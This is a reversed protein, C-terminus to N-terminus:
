GRCGSAGQSASRPGPSSQPVAPLLPLHSHTAPAVLSSHGPGPHHLAPFLLYLVLASLGFVGCLCGPRGTGLGSPSSTAARQTGTLLPSLISVRICARSPPPRASRSMEGMFTSSSCFGHEVEPRQWIVVGLLLGRAAVPRGAPVPSRQAGAGAAAVADCAPSKANLTAAGRPEATASDTARLLQMLPGLAGHGATTIRTFLNRNIAVARSHCRPAHRGGAGRWRVGCGGFGVPSSLHAKSTSLWGEPSCGRLLGARFLYELSPSLSTSIEVSKCVPDYMEMSTRPFAPTIPGRGRCGRAFGLRALAQLPKANNGERRGLGGAFLGRGLWLCFTGFDFGKWCLWRPKADGACDSMEM